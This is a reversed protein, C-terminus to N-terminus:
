TPRSLIEEGLERQRYARPSIGVAQKFRRSFYLADAFGLLEAIQRIPLQTYRLLEVARSIRRQDRFQSPSVGAERLFRKRFTEYTLGLETQALSRLDPSETLTAEIAAKAQALWQTNLETYPRATGITTAFLAMFRHFLELSDWVDKPSPSELIRLWAAPPPGAGQLRLIPTEPSILGSAHWREVGSGELVVYIEDWVDGNRPGYTHRVGPFILIADGENIPETRGSAHFYVGNGKPILVIAYSPYRRWGAKTIGHGDHIAGALTLRGEPTDLWDQLLIRHVM